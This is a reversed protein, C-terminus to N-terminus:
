QFDLERSILVDADQMMRCFALEASLFDEVLPIERLEAYERELEEVRDMLNESSESSQLEYNRKRFENVKAYLEEQQKIKGLQQEYELYEPSQKVERIYTRAAELIQHNM